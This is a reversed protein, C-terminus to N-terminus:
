NAPHNPQQETRARWLTLMLAAISIGILDALVDYLDFSRTKFFYQTGEEALAFLLVLSTGYFIPLQALSWTKFRSAVTVLIAMTGYICAHGIKDGYPISHAFQIFPNKTGLDADIIIWGIFAFFLVAPLWRQM